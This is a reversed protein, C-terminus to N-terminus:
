LLSSTSTKEVDVDTLVPVIVAVWVADVGITVDVAVSVMVAVEYGTSALYTSGVDGSFDYVIRVRTLFYCM